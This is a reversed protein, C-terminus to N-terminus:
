IPVAGVHQITKAAIKAGAKLAKEISHHHMYSALFGAAFADGAGTTDIIKDVKIAPCLLREDGTFAISGHEGLTVIMLKRSKKAIHEIQKILAQHKQDLGFFAIDIHDLHSHLLSFDPHQAFDSFDVAVIGTKPLPMILNFINHIQEYVPTMILDADHILKIQEENLKFNKLIGEEYKIFDKEGNEKIGIYQVPTKGAYRDIHCEIDPLNISNFALEAAGGDNGIASIIHIEDSKEFCRRAQKTFNATIGGPYFKELPLYQDVGCDGVCVVKM